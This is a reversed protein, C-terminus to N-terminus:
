RDRLNGLREVARDYSFKERSNRYKYNKVSAGGAKSAKTGNDSTVLSMSQLYQSSSTSQLHRANTNNNSIHTFSHPSTHSSNVIMFNMEAADINKIHDLDLNDM